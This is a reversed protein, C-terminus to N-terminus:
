RLKRSSRWSSERWAAASAVAVPPTSPMSGNPPTYGWGAATLKFSAQPLVGM